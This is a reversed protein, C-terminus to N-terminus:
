PTVPQILIVGKSAKNGWNQIAQENNPPYYALAPRASLHMEYIGNAALERIESDSYEKGDIIYVGEFIKADVTEVPRLSIRVTDTKADIYVNTRIKKGATEVVTGQIQKQISRANDPKLEKSQAAKLVQSKGPRIATILKASEDLPAAASLVSSVAKPPNVVLYVALMVPMLFVYRFAKIGSPNDTNMMGIRRRIGSSHFTNVAMAPSQKMVNRLLSLQYTKRDAGKMLVSEDALFELNTRVLKKYLYIFPNVWLFAAIMESLLADISHWQKAHAQEHLIIQHDTSAFSDRPIVIYNFFSFPGEDASSCFIMGDRKIKDAARIIRVTRLIHIFIRILFLAAVSGYIMMCWEIPKYATSSKWPTAPLSILDGAPLIRQWNSSGATHAVEYTIDPLFPLAFGTVAIMLLVFRNLQLFKESRFFIYFVLVLVAIILNVKLLYYITAEM